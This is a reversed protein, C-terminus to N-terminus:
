RKGIGTKRCGSGRKRKEKKSKVKFCEWLLWFSSREKFYKPIENNTFSKLLRMIAVFAKTEQHSSILIELFHDVKSICSIKVM